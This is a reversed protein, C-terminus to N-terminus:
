RVKVIRYFIRHGVPEFRERGVRLDVVQELNKIAAANGDDHVPVFKEAQNRPGIQKGVQAQVHRLRRNRRLAFVILARM